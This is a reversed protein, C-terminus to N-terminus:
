LGVVGGWGSCWFEQWTWWRLSLCGLRTRVFDWEAPKVNNLSLRTTLQLVHNIPDQTMILWASLFEPNAEIVFLTWHQSSLTEQNLIVRSTAQKHTQQVFVLRTAFTINLWSFNSYFWFILMLLRHRPRTFATLWTLLSWRVTNMKDRCRLECYLSKRVMRLKSQARLYESILPLLKDLRFLAHTVVSWYSLLTASAEIWWSSVIM